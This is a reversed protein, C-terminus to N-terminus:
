TPHNTQISAIRTFRSDEAVLSYNGSTRLNSLSAGQASVTATYDLGKVGITRHFDYTLVDSKKVIDRDQEVNISKQIASNLANKGVLYTLADGTTKSTLGARYLEDDTVIEYGLLTPLNGTAVISNQLADGVTPATVLGLEKYASKVKSRMVLVFGTSKYEDLRDGFVEELATIDTAAPAAATDAVVNDTNAATSGQMAAILRQNWAKAVNPAIQKAAEANIDGGRIQLQAVDLNQVGNYLRVIPHRESHDDIARLTINNGPALEQMDGIIEWQPFTIVNGGQAIDATAVSDVLGAKWFSNSEPYMAEIYDALVEPDILNAPDTYAM